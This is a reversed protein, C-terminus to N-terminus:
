EKGYNAWRTKRTMRSGTKKSQELAYKIPYHCSTIKQVTDKIALYLQTRGSDRFVAEANVKEAEIMYFCIREGRLHKRIQWDKDIPCIAASCKQFRDCSKPTTYQNDQM